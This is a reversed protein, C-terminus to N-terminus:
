SHANPLVYHNLWKLEEFQFVTIKREKKREKLTRSNQNNVQFFDESILEFFLFAYDLM